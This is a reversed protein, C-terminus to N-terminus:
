GPSLLQKAYGRFGDADVPTDVLYGAGVFLRRSATNDERVTATCRCPVASTGALYAEGAALLPGSLSEGRREPAVTISVEWDDDGQDWRVTGVPGRADSAVLLLRDSRRLTGTLWGLHTALEVPAGSRSYMRTLPDNRWARLLEADAATAPRVALRVDPRRPGPDGPPRLPHAVLQEWASVVRWGGQGDVLGSARLALEARHGGPGLLTHLTAAAAVPDPLGLGLAAAAGRAVVRDYGARQNEVVAVLAMPVGLCCLEWVTTGAASVVLDHQLVLAALDDVPPVLRVELRSARDAERRSAGLVGEPAVVTVGLPLGTSALASVVRPTCGVPDSGGMVVLVRDARDRLRWQGRRSVVASRLPVYRAGRQLAMGADTPRAVREAGLNPDIVLDARRRGFLGDEMNSVLLEGGSEASPDFTPPDYTDLHLVAPAVEDLLTRSLGDRRVDFAPGSLLREVFPGDFRGALTVQHGRRTAEEALALSRSVHGLGTASGGNCHILVQM